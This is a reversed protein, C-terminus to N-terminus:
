ILAVKVRQHFSIWFLQMVGALMRKGPDLSTWSCQLTPCAKLIPLRRRRAHSFQSGCNPGSSFPLHGLCKMPQIAELFRVIPHRIYVIMWVRGNYPQLLSPLVDVSPSALCRRITSVDFFDGYQPCACSPRRRSRRGRTFRLKVLIQKRCLVANSQHNRQAVDSLCSIATLRKRRM